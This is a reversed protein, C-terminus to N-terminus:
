HRARARDIMWALAILSGVLLMVRPPFGMLWAAFAFAIALVLLKDLVRLRM